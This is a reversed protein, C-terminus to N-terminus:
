YSEDGELKKLLEDVKQEDLILQKDFDDSSPTDKQSNESGLAKLPANKNSGHNKLPKQSGAVLTSILLANSFFSKLTIKM